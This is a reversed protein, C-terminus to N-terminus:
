TVSLPIDARIVTGVGRPSDITLTGSLASVRDALGRLGSGSGAEAGGVGDDRVEVVVRGNSRAVCVAAEKAQAYKAVNTLAESVVFYAAAEVPEPLREEPADVVVPLPARSALSELAPGLGRETLVAPHIGRALERLEELALALEERASQLVSDAGEPDATVKAQALRLALSLSVLRQQAGDHLNRELRRRADDAAHVIRARSAALEERQHTQQTVDQAALLYRGMGEDEPLQSVNWTVALEEGTATEWRGDREDIDPHRRMARFADRTAERHARAVFIEWFPRGLVREDRDVYGLLEGGRRNVRLIGGAEDLLVLISPAGNVIRDTMDRERELEGLREELQRHLALLEDDQRKRVTFDRVILLFEDEDVRAVRGEFFRHQGNILLDYEIPESTGGELAREGCAMIAEAVDAPLVDRVARGMFEEPPLLLLEPDDAKYGRYIGDSGIRFMIDPIADLLARTRSESRELAIERRIRQTFDRVILMFEEEGAAVVRGEYTRVEVGFDLEYEITQVEGTALARVGARMIREAVETPLRERVTRGVVESDFLDRTSEAKYDLYTGDRSIRFMLDPIADVLARTRTESRALAEFRRENEIAMGAAASVADLLDRNDLLSPDHIMTAIPQGGREVLTAQRAGNAHSADVPTGDHDVFVGHEEDWRALTLTPDHLVRRLSTEIGDPGRDRGIEVVLESVAARSLKRELLGLLSALPVSLLGIVTVWALVDVITESVWEAIFVLLLSLIVITSTLYVPALTRRLAPSARDYRRWLITIATAAVAIAGIQVLSGVIVAATGSDEVLLRNSPCTVGEDCLDSSPTVLLVLLQGLTALTWAGIVAARAGAGELRGSPFALVFHLFLAFVISGLSLGITFLTSDNAITLVGFFSTLGVLTMLKGSGNRPRRVWAILGATVFALGAACALVATAAPNEVHDSTYALVWAAVVVGVTLTWVAAARRTTM